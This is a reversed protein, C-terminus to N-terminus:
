DSRRERYIIDVIKGFGTYEEARKATNAVGDVDFFIVKGGSTLDDNCTCVILRYQQNMFEETQNTLISYDTAGYLNFKMKTITEDAALGTPIETTKRTGLNYCYIKNGVSYFLLPFRTEFAFETAQEFGPADVDPIYLEQAYGSGGLNIGYISRKGTSPDQLITYVLGHSRRTGQM